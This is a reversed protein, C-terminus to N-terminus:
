RAQRKPAAIIRGRSWSDGPSSTTTTTTKMHNKKPIRGRRYNRPSVDPQSKEIPRGTPAPVAGGPPSRRVPPAEENAKQARRVGAAPRPSPGKRGVTVGRLPGPLTWPGSTPAIGAAPLSADGAPQQTLTLSCPCAYLRRPGCPVSPRSGRRGISVTGQGPGPPFACRRAVAQRSCSISPRRASPGSARGGCSRM